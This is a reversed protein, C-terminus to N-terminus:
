KEFYEDLLANILAQATIGNGRCVEMVAEHRSPTVDVVIRHPKERPAKKARDILQRLRAEPGTLEGTDRPGPDRTLAM